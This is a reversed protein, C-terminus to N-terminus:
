QKINYYTKILKKYTSLEQQWHIDDWNLEEKTIKQIQNIHKLGHLFDTIGVRVRRLLLDDLHIVGENKAAWRIEPILSPYTSDKDLEDPNISDIFNIVHKGYRGFLRLKINKDIYPPISDDKSFESLITKRQPNEVMRPFYNAIARLTDRAMRRFTTLKGGTITLLGKELIIRHERSERSPDVKGTGIVPRVGSFTSQIDDESINGFPFIDQIGELLYEYEDNSIAIETQMEKKHDVDTTGVLTVGEWPIAFIFRHDKPHMFSVARTLPLRSFPLVIHSGRLKRLNKDTIAQNALPNLNRIDDSWAGTANIVVTAKIEITRCAHDLSSDDRIVVGCVKKSGQTLIAIVPAYNIATGGEDTTEQILRFVLRADDTQADFYRYGGTLNNQNLLPCLDTIDIADYHRHGWKMALLDYIILGLGFIWSPPKNYKYTALLFSLPNVLGRAEGLLLERERISEYTLLFQGNKLYRLGGHVLKSSRSSTGSGFDHAEVLLARLGSRVAEHFIGAGTIGGGIIILNWERDLTSWIANRWNNKQM